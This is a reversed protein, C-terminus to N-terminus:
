RLAQETAVDFIEAPRTHSITVRSCCRFAGKELLNFGARHHGKGYRGYANGAIDAQEADLPEIAIFTEELFERVTSLLRNDKGAVALLEVATGASVMAGGAEGIRSRFSAAEEEKLLIALVASSDLVIM